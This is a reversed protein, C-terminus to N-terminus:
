KRNNLWVLFLFFYVFFYIFLYLATRSNSSNKMSVSVVEADYYRRNEGDDLCGCIRQNTRVKKCESDQLQTSRVRVRSRLKAPDTLVSMELSEEDEDFDKFHVIIQGKVRSLTGDYWAEDVSCKMELNSDM